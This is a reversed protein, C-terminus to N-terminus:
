NIPYSATVYQLEAWKIWAQYRAIVYEINNQTVQTRADMLELYNTVGLRYKKLVEQYTKEASVIRPRYTLAQLNASKLNNKAMSSQLDFQSQVFVKEKKQAEILALAQNKKSRHRRHDYINWELHIGLLVYPKWKFKYDQSGLDLQAGLKPYYFQNEKKVALHRMELGVDMQALEERRGEQPTDAPLEPLQIMVQERTIDPNNLLFAVLKWANQENNQANILQADIKAMESKIRSVSSPLAKGNKFLVQTVRLAEQLLEQADKFIDISKGAMQWQLYATMIEKSLRRKFAKIELQKLNIKKSQLQRNIKLDPYFIPQQIRIKADLYNNPLFNIVQNDVTPFSKSATLQNLTGYVPNLLDGIPFDIDRGGNALTYLADLKATPGYLSKAEQLTAEAFKLKFHEARLQENNEWTMQVLNDFDQARAPFVLVSCLFAFILIRYVM